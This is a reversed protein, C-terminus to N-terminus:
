VAWKYSKGEVVQQVSGVSVGYIEAIKKRSLNQKYYLFKIQEVDDPTFNREQNREMYQEWNPLLQILRQARVPGIDMEESIQTWSFGDERLFAIAQALELEEAELKKREEEASSGFWHNWDVWQAGNRVYYQHPSRPIGDPLKPAGKYEDCLYKYWRNSTNIEFKTNTLNKVVWNRAKEYPWINKNGMAGRKVGFFDSVSKFQKGYFATPDRPMFLPLNPANALYKTVTDIGLPVLHKQVWKKALKYPLIEEERRHIGRTQCMLEPWSMFGKGKYVNAISVPMNFPIIGKEILEDHREVYQVGTTIGLPVVKEQMIKVCDDWSIPEIGLWDMAGKYHYPYSTMPSVPVDKPRDPGYCFEEWEKMSKLGLSRAFARADQFPRMKTRGVSTPRPVAVKETKLAHAIKEWLGTPSVTPGENEGDRYWERLREICKKKIQFVTNKTLGVIEAIEEGEKEEIYYLHLIKAYIPQTVGIFRLAARTFDKYELSNSYYSEEDLYAEITSVYGKKRNILQLIRWRYIKFLFGRTSRPNLLKERWNWVKNLCWQLCDEADEVCIGSFRQMAWGIATDWIEDNFITLQKEAQETTGQSFIIADFKSNDFRGM